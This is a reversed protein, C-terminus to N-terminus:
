PTQGREHVVVSIGYERLDPIAGPNRPDFPQWGAKPDPNEIITSVSGLNLASLTVSLCPMAWGWNFEFERAATQDFAIVGRHEVLEHMLVSRYRNWQMTAAIHFVVAVSCTWATLRWLDAQGTTRHASASSAAPRNLLVLGGLVLPVYVSQVRSTYQFWPMVVGAVPLVAVAIGCAITLFWIVRWGRKRGPWFLCWLACAIVMLSFWVPPYGLHELMARAFDGRNAPDRPVITSYLSVVFATLFLLMCIGCTALEGYTSGTWATRGRLWAALVLLWSLFLYCEYTRTALVACGILLGSRVVNLRESFMLLYLLCWFLSVAVYIESFILFSTDLFLISHSLMPYALYHGPAQRAAWWTVFLGGVPVFFLTAGYTLGVLNVDRCGLNRLLFIAPLETVLHAFERAPFWDVVTRTRLIGLFNLSGDAFLYRQSWACYCGLAALTLLQIAMLAPWAGADMGGPGNIVKQRFHRILAEM